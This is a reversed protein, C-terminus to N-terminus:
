MDVDTVAAACTAVRERELALAVRVHEAIAEQKERERVQKEMADQVAKRCIAHKFVGGVRYERAYLTHFSAELAMKAFNFEQIKADLYKIEDVACSAIVSICREGSAAYVEEMTKLVNALGEASSKDIIEAMTWEELMQMCVKRTAVDTVDKEIIQLARQKLIIVEDEKTIRLRKAGGTLREILEVYSGNTIGNSSVTSDVELQNRRYILRQDRRPLGLVGYILM